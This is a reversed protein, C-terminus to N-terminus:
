ASISLNSGSRFVAFIPRVPGTRYCFWSTKQGRVSDFFDRSRNVPWHSVYTRLCPDPYALSVHLSCGWTDDRWPGWRRQTVAWVCWPGQREGLAADRSLLLPPPPQSTNHNTWLPCSSRCSPTTNPSSAGTQTSDHLHTMRTLAFTPYAAASRLTPGWEGVM